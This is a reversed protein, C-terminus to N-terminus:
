GGRHQVTRREQYEAMTVRKQWRFGNLLRERCCEGVDLHQTYNTHQSKGVSNVPLPLPTFFLKGIIKTTDGFCVDCVVTIKRAM